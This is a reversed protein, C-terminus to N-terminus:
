YELINGTWATNAKIHNRPLRRLYGRLWAICGRINARGTPIAFWPQDHHRRRHSTMNPVALRRPRLRSRGKSEEALEEVPTWPRNEQTTERASVEEEPVSEARLLETSEAPSEMKEKEGDEAGDERAMVATESRTSATGSGPILEPDVAQGKALAYLPRPNKM